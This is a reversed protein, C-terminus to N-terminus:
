GGDAVLVDFLKGFVCTVFQCYRGCSMIEVLEGSSSVEGADGASLRRWMIWGFVSGLAAASM